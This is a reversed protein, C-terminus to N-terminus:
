TRATYTVDIIVDALDDLVQKQNFTKQKAEIGKAVVRRRMRDALGSQSVDSQLFSSSHLLFASSASRAADDAKLFAAVDDVSGFGIEGAAADAAKGRALKRYDM